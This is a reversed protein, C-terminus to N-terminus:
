DRGWRLAFLLADRELRFWVGTTGCAYDGDSEHDDLWDLIFPKMVAGDYVIQTYALIQQMDLAGAHKMM